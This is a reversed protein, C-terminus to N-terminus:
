RRVLETANIEVDDPMLDICDSAFAQLKRRITRKVSDSDDLVRALDRKTQGTARGHLERLPQEISQEYELLTQAMTRRLRTNVFTSPDM